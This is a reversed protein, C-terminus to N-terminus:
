ARGDFGINERTKEYSKRQTFGSWLGRIISKLYAMRPAVLLPYGVIKYCLKRLNRRKWSRPALPSHALWLLNRIQYYLRAPTSINLGIGLPQGYRGQEHSFLLDCAVFLRLGKERARWCWEQDVFDIFLRENMIGTTHLATCSIFSFSAIISHAEYFTYGEHSFRRLVREDTPRIYPKHSHRNIPMAGVAAVNYIRSVIHYRRKLEAVLHPSAISDQDALLIYRCGENLCRRIGLNQAAAIGRNEGLPVYEGVRCQPLNATCGKPTNDIMFLRDVQNQLAEIVKYLLQPDPNYLVVVAGIM